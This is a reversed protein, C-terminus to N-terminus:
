IGGADIITWNNPSNTLIDRGSQGGAISYYIGDFSVPNLNQQVSLTSWNTYISDLFATRLPVGGGMFGSFNSVNSINWGGLDQDFSLAGNFMNSMNTVASLSSGSSEWTSLDQNFSNTDSFMGSMNTVNSVNWQTIDVNFSPNSGFMYSMNIINSTDWSNLESINFNTNYFMYTTGTVPSVDWNEVLNISTLGTCDYFMKNLDFTNNFSPIDIVSACNLNECGEFLRTTTFAEFMGWEDVSKLMNKREQSLSSLGFSFVYKLSDVITVQYANGDGYMHVVEPDTYSTLTSDTGDGWNVVLPFAAPYNLLPLEAITQIGNPDQWTTRFAVTRTTSPTMTTTQSPTNTPTKTPTVTTKATESPTIGITFSPTPTQTHTPTKTHTATQTPTPTKSSTNTNTPTQTMTPTITNTPTITMTPTNTPTKTQTQTPTLTVQSTKTQTPTKTTTRTPTVTVTQSYTQTQTPTNTQTQTPTNSPTRTPTETNSPTMTPTLGVTVTATLTPTQTPTTTPTQTNTITQTPTPTTTPTLTPTQTIRIVCSDCTGYISYIQIVNSNSSVNTVDRDYRVCLYQNGIPTIILISMIFGISVTTSDFILQNSVFYEEGTVCNVLVKTVTSDFPSDIITFIAQGSIQVRNTPTPTLTATFSPTPTQSTKFINFDLGITYLPSSTPSPTGPTTIFTFDVAGCDISTTPTPSPIYECDFYADFSLTSCNQPSPTPTPCIGGVFNNSSIDPCNSYCPTKGKLYCSGGLSNSLCWQTGTHYIIGTTLGDGTYYLRNNYYNQTSGYNGNFGSLSSLTTTFCFENYECATPTSSVSPTVTQTPFPTPTPTPTINCSICDKFQPSGIYDGGPGDFRIFSYCEGNYIYTAGVFATDTDVNFYVIEGNSCKSLVSANRSTRPCLGDGCDGVLTFTVGNSDFLPGSGDNITITACGVFESGGNIFYTNGTISPISSGRFRFVKSGDECSVFQTTFVSTPTLTPTISPTPTPTVFCTSVSTVVGSLGVTYCMTGGTISNSYYGQPATTTCGSDSYLTANTDLIYFNSYYNSGTITLCAGECSSANFTLTGASYCYSPAM